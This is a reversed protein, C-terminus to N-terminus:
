LFIEKEEPRVGVGHIVRANLYAPWFRQPIADRFISHSSTSTMDPMRPDMIWYECRDSQARIGRGLTQIFRRVSKQIADRYYRAEIRSEDVGLREAKWEVDGPDPPPAFPLRTIMMRTFKQSGDSMRIDTGVAARATVLVVPDDTATFEEIIGTLATGPRDEIVAVRQRARLAESLKTTEEHSGTCILMTEQVHDACFQIFEDNIIEGRIPTPGRGLVFSAHGFELPEYHGYYAPQDIGLKSCLWVASYQRQSTIDLTGSLLWVSDMDKIRDKFARAAYTSLQLLTAKGGKVSIAANRTSLEFFRYLQNVYPHEGLVDAAVEALNTLALWIDPENALYHLGDDLERVGDVLTDTVHQLRPHLTAKRAIADVSIRRSYLMEATAILGDAEDVILRGRQFADPLSAFAGSAMLTIHTIILVDLGQEDSRVQQLYASSKDDSACTVDSVTIGAPLHGYEGLYEQVLNDRGSSNAARRLANWLDQESTDDSAELTDGLRNVRDPSLYEQYGFRIGTKPITLQDGAAKRLSEIESQVQQALQHNPVAIIANGGLQMQASLYALTKGIGTGANFLGIGKPTNVLDRHLDEQARRTTGGRLAIIDNLM